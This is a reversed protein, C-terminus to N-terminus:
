STKRSVLHVLKEMREFPERILDAYHVVQEHVRRWEERARTGYTHAQANLWGIGRILVYMLVLPILGLIFIEVALVVVAIDRWFELPM